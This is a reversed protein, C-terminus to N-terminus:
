KRHYQKFISTCITVELIQDQDQEQEHEAEYNILEDIEIAIKYFAESVLEENKILTVLTKENTALEEQIKSNLKLLKSLPLEVEREKHQRQYSQGKSFM